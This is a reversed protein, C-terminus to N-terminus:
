DIGETVISQVARMVCDELATLALSRERSPPCFDIITEGFSKAEGRLDEIRTIQEDTPRHNTLNRAIQRRAQENPDSM